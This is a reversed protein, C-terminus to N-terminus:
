IRLVVAVSPSYLVGFARECFLEVGLLDLRVEVWDGLFFAFGGRLTMTFTARYHDCSGCGSVGCDDPDYVCFNHLFVGPQFSGAWYVHPTRVPALLRLEAALQPGVGASKEAIDSESRSLPRSNTWFPFSVVYPHVVLGLEWWVSDGPMKFGIDISPFPGFKVMSGYIDDLFSGGVGVSYSVGVYFHGVNPQGEPVMEIRITRTKQPWIRTKVTESWYGAGEARVEYVGAAVIGEWPAEGVRLGDVYVIVGKLEVHEDELRVILAAEEAAEAASGYLLLLAVSAHAIRKVVLNM